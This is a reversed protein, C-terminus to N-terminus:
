VRREVLRFEQLLRFVDHDHREPVSQQGSIWAFLDQDSEGLLAEYRDLQLRDLGAIHRDAFRGLLLDGELRGRYRSQYVLRKRRIAIPETMRASRSERPNGVSRHGLIYGGRVPNCLGATIRAPRRQQLMRASPHGCVRRVIRKGGQERGRARQFPDPGIELTRKAPQKAQWVTDGRAAEIQEPMQRLRHDVAAEDVAVGTRGFALAQGQHDHDLLM